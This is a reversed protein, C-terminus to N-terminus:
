DNNLQGIEHPFFVLPVTASQPYFYYVPSLFVSSVAMRRVPVVRMYRTNM